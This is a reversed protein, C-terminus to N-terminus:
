EQQECKITSNGSDGSMEMLRLDHTLHDFFEESVSRRSSVTKTSSEMSKVSKPSSTASSVITINSILPNPSNTISLKNMEANISPSKMSPYRQLSEQQVDENEDVEADFDYLDFASYHEDVAQEDSNSSLLLLVRRCDSVIMRAGECGDGGFDACRVVLDHVRSLENKAGLSSLSTLLCHLELDRLRPFPFSNGFIKRDTQFAELHKQLLETLMSKICVANGTNTKCLTFLSKYASFSLIEKVAVPLAKVGSPFLFDCEEAVKEGAFKTIRAVSFIMDVAEEIIKDEGIARPILSDTILALLQCDFREDAEMEEIKVSRNFMEKCSYLASRLEGLIVSWIENLNLESVSFITKCVSIFVQTSTRWIAPMKSNMPCKYKLKMFRGLSQLLAAMAKSGFLENIGESNKVIDPIKELLLCTMAIFTYKIFTTTPVDEKMSVSSSATSQRSRLSAYGMSIMENAVPANTALRLWGSIELLVLEMDPLVGASRSVLESLIQNLLYKQVETATEIDRVQDSPTPCQLAGTLAKLSKELWSSESSSSSSEWCLDMLQSFIRFYKLLSDQTFFVNCCGKKFSEESILIWTEWLSRSYEKIDGANLEKLSGCLQNLSNIAVSTLEVSGDRLLAYDKLIQLFKRWYGIFGVLEVFIGKLHTTILTSVGVMVTSETEDWQKSESDRSFHAFGVPITTIPSSTSETVRSNSATQRLEKLFEFIIEDFLCTLKDSFGKLSSANMKVTRLLTQVASNRLEPRSDLSMRTLHRLLGKWLDFVDQVSKACLFDSIDWLYRVTNLPINLEGPLSIGGVEAIIDILSAFCSIPISSLFDGSAIKVTDHIRQYLLGITLEANNSEIGETTESRIIKLDEKLISWVLSWSVENLCEGFVQLYRIVADLLVRQVDIWTVSHSFKELPCLIRLQLSDCASLPENPGTSCRSSKMRTPPVTKIFLDVIISVTEISSQRLGADKLKMLRGFEEMLLDWAASCKEGEVFRIMNLCTLRKLKSIILLLSSAYKEDGDVLLEGIAQNYSQILFTFSREEWIVTSETFSTSLDIAKALVDEDLGVHLQQQQQHIGHVQLKRAKQAQLQETLQIVRVIVILSDELLEGIGHGVELIMQIVLLNSKKVEISISLNLLLDSLLRLQSRFEFVSFIILARSFFEITTQHLQVQNFCLDRFVREMVQCVPGGSFLMLDTIISCTKPNLNVSKVSKYVPLGLSNKEMCTSKVFTSLVGFWSGFADYALLLLAIPSVAPPASKDFQTLVSSKGLADSIQGQSDSPQSDLIKKMIELMVELMDKLIRPSEKKESILYIEEILSQSQLISKNVELVLACEWNLSSERLIRIGFAIFIEIEDPFLDNFETISFQIIRWHRCTKAFDIKNDSSSKLNDILYPCIRDQILASFSRHSRIVDGHNVLVSEILDLAFPKDVKSLDLSACKQEDLRCTVDSLILLADKAHSNVTSEISEQTTSQEEGVWEFLSIVMQRIIAATANNVM